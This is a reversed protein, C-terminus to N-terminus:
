SHILRDRGADIARGGGVSTMTGVPFVEELQFPHGALRPMM